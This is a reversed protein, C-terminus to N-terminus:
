AHAVNTLSVDIIRSKPLEIKLVGGELEVWSSATVVPLPLEIVRLMQDPSFDIYVNKMGAIAPEQVQKKGIIIIRTPEISVRLEGESFGLVNARVSIRNESESLVVPVPRLLEAEARFWDEWDRGHVSGRAEFLEFARRAIGQEIAAAETELLAANSPSLRICPPDHNSTPARRIAM